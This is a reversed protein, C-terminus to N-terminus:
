YTLKILLTTTANNTLYYPQGVEDRLEIYISYIDGQIKTLANEIYNGVMAVGLNGCDLPIMALLNANRQTDVTSTGVVTTYISIVSSYVLNCYGDATYYTLNPATGLQEEGEEAEINIAYPIIPRFRNFYLAITSGFPVGTDQLVTNVANLDNLLGSGNWTFGLRRALTQYQAYINGIISTGYCDGLLYVSTKREIYKLLADVSPDEYGAILYSNFYPNAEFYQSVNVWDTTNITPPEAEYNDKICYYFINIYQVVNGVVYPQQNGTWTTYYTPFIRLSWPVVNNPNPAVGTNTNRAIYFNLDYFVLSNVTYTVSSNWEVINNIEPATNINNHEVIFKNENNEYIIRIDNAIYHEYITFRLDNLCAKELELSLEQYDNFTRNYGYDSVTYGERNNLLEKKYSSPLLRIFFLTSSSTMTETFSPTDVFYIDGVVNSKPVTRLRYYPFVLSYDPISCQAQPIVAKLLQLSKADLAPRPLNVTFNYYQAFTLPSIPPSQQQANTSSLSILEPQNLYARFTRKDQLPQREFDNLIEEIARETDSSM